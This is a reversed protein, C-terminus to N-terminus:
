EVPADKATEGQLETEGKYRSASRSNNVPASLSGGRVVRVCGSDEGELWASGDSPAGSFSSRYCDEVWEWVNGHVDYLGLANPAFSGVPSTQIGYRDDCEIYLWPSGTNDRKASQGPVNAYDCLESEDDGFSYRTNTGARAAYEWEAETLFRYAKGTKEALWDIYANADNWSICVVPHDDTQPFNPDSWNKGSVPAGGRAGTWVVCKNNIAHGTARVFQGYQGVTVEFNSVAFPNSITVEHLPGENSMRGVEAEPSGMMFTGAPIIVMEPCDNCDKFVSGPPLSDDGASTASESATLAAFVFLIFLRKCVPRKVKENRFRYTIKWKTSSM